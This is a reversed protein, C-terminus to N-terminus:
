NGIPQSSTGTSSCSGVLDEEMLEHRALEVVLEFQEKSLNCAGIYALIELNLSMISM